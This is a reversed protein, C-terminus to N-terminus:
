ELNPIAAIDAIYGAFAQHGAEFGTVMNGYQVQKQGSAPYSNELTTYINPVLNAQIDDLAHAQNDTLAVKTGAQAAPLLVNLVLDMLLEVAVSANTVTVLEPSLTAYYYSLFEISGPGAPAVTPIGGQPTYVQLGIQQQDGGVQTQAGACGAAGVAVSIQQQAVSPHIALTLIAQGDTIPETIDQGAVTFTAEVPPTAPPNNLTATLTYENQNQAVTLSFYPQEVLQGDQVRYRNPFNYAMIVDVPISSQPYPGLLSSDASISPAENQQCVYIIEGTASIYQIWYSAEM